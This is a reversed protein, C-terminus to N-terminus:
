GAFQHDVFEAIDGLLPIWDINGIGTGNRVIVIDAAPDVYIFQGHDGNAYYASRAEDIWWLYQYDTAPDTTTDVRTAEHVFEAPIVQNRGNHGDNLYLWGFRAFDIARANLGVFMKEFRHRESDLSWSGDAEAGMPQWVRTAAYDAVRMGAARELAVGLMIVNWDNYHFVEGPPGIIRPTALVASRLDTGHYTNAPDDWPGGGDDFSLGSSMTLLHRLTIETYREDRDVLEPLYDTVPDDLGAIIGEGVAIGILTATFSKAVSFSTQMTDRSSGNVYKEYLVDDGRLVILATTQNNTLLQELREGDRGRFEALPDGEVRGFAAVDDGAEIVQAPFRDQDGVASEGWVLARALQSTDTSTRAWVYMGTAALGAVILLGVVVFAAIRRRPTTSTLRVPPRQPPHDPTERPDLPATTPM